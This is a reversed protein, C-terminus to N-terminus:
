CIYEFKMSGCDWIRDYNNLEMNRWESINYDFNQLIKNLESKRYKYRHERYNHHKMYWYNPNTNYIFKFGNKDYLKGLSWRRDAYSVIKEPKYTIKFYNLLKSFGGVISTNLKTTYRILEYHNNIHKSGTIKRLKGFTM